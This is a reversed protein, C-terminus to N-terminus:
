QREFSTSFVPRTMEPGVVINRRGAWFVHLARDAAESPLPWTNDGNPNDFEVLVVLQLRDGAEILALSAGDSSWAPETQVTTGGSRPYVQVGDVRVHEHGPDGAVWALHDGAPAFVFRRGECLIPAAGESIPQIV